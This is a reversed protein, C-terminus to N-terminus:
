QCGGGGAPRRATVTRVPRPPPAAAAQGTLMGNLAVRFAYREREAETANAGPLGPTTLAYARWAPFGDRLSFVRGSYAAIEPPLEDITKAGIVVIDPGAKVFQLGLKSVQAVDVPESGPIRSKTWEGEGRLDLVRMKWPENVLRQAVGSALIQEPRRSREAASTPTSVLGIVLGAVAAAGLVAMATHRRRKTDRDPQRISDDKTFKRELKEAGFFALVAMVTVALALLPRSVGLWETLFFHGMESSTAFSGIIPFIEGYLVSGVVVGGLTVMGDVNGSAAAVASTGPCYGSIIFGAGLALGGVLMPWLYTFSAAGRALAEVQIIGIGDAIVLGIMATIIATFMVKFVTMDRLYFQNALKTSRGFGARELVFGFGFGTVLAVVLGLGIFETFLSELPLRM